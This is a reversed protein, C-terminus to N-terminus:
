SWLRLASLLLLEAVIVYVRTMRNRWFGAKITTPPKGYVSARRATSRMKDVPSWRQVNFKPSSSSRRSPDWSRSEVVDLRLDIGVGVRRLKRRPQALQDRRKGLIQGRAGARQTQAAHDLVAERQRAVGKGIEGLRAAGSGGGLVIAFQRVDRALRADDIRPAAVVAGRRELKQLRKGKSRHMVVFNRESACKGLRAADLEFASAVLARRHQETVNGFAGRFVQWRALRLPELHIEALRQVARAVTVLSEGDRALQFGLQGRLFRAEGKQNADLLGARKRRAALKVFGLVAEGLRFDIQGVLAVRESSEFIELGLALEIQELAVAGSDVNEFLHRALEGLLVQDRARGIHPHLEGACQVLHAPVVLRALRERERQPARNGCVQGLEGVANTGVHHLAVTALMELFDGPVDFQDPSPRAHRPAEDHEASEAGAPATLDIACEIKGVSLLDRQLLDIEGGVALILPLPGDIRDPGFIGAGEGEGMGPDRMHAIKQDLGLARDIDHLLEDVSRREALNERTARRVLLQEAKESTDGIRQRRKVGLSDHMAVHLGVIDYQAPSCRGHQDIEADSQNSTRLIAERPDSRRRVHRGLLLAFPHNISSGVDVREALHDGLDVAALKRGLEREAREALPRM